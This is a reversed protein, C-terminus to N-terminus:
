FFRKNGMAADLCSMAPLNIDSCEESIVTNGKVKTESESKQQGKERRKERRTKEKGVTRM